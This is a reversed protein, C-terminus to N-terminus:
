VDHSSNLRTSKRDLMNIFGPAVALGKAEILTGASTGSLDGIAAIRDAKIGVDAKFPAGGSGDYILGSKIISDFDFAGEAFLSVAFACLVCLLAISFIPSWAGRPLCNLDVRV